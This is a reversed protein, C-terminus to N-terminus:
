VREQKKERGREGSLCERRARESLDMGYMCESERKRKREIV